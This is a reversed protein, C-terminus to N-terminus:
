FKKGISFKAMTVDIDADVTNFSSATGGVESGNLTIKDFMTKELSGRFFIGSDNSGEYGIGFHKGDLSTNGYTSGSALTEKTDVDAYALGAKLFFGSDFMKTLYVTAIGTVEANATNNGTTGGANTGGPSHRNTKNSGALDASGAIYDLGLGLGSDRSIEVFLSPVIANAEVTTSTVQGSDKLTENGAAELSALGLSLGVRVEKANSPIVMLFSAVIATIAFKITKM